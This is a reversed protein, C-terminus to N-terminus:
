WENSYYRDRYKKPTMGVQAKFAQIFHSQSSFALYNAIEIFSYDSFQLLNKAREVKQNRIYDSIALGTESKFLKSLYSPSLGVSEALEEVTIRSHIHAYIYELSKVVAKSISQETQLISMRETYDLVMTGHLAVVDEIQTCVDMKQIYFDSLRYAQEQVMGAMVCHRTILAATVIFHYKINTLPNRSLQGAVSMNTFHKQALNQRIYDMNGNVVAKYFLYEEGMPRHIHDEENEKTEQLHWEKTLKM